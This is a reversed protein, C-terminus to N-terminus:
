DIKPFYDAPSITVGQLDEHTKTLLVIPPGVSIASSSPKNPRVAQQIALIGQQTPDDFAAALVNGNMLSRLITHSIYTSLLKPTYLNEEVALLGIAAEVAPASGILYDIEPHRELATEVLALQQRLGTDASFVEVLTVSSDSLIERLGAELPGTWGAVSPGSILAATKSPSDKPHLESLYRGVVFGMGNWDVGIRGSLADSHLENVLGFVPVDQAVRKIAQLLDPHNSTVAGILIADVGREVCQNLLKIQEERANYGGAEYLLLAVNQRAAEQELGYGVSLWYEDKFHPVLVCFLQPKEAPSAAAPAVWLACCLMVLAISCRGIAGYLKVIRCVLNSVRSIWIREAIATSAM